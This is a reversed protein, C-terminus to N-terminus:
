IALEYHQENKRQKGKEKEEEFCNQLPSSFSLPLLPFHAVRHAPSATALSVRAFKKGKFHEAKM